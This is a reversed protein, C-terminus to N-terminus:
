GPASGTDEANAPPNKVMAGPSINNQFIPIKYLNSEFFEICTM